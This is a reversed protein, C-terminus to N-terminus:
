CGGPIQKPITWDLGSSIYMKHSSSTAGIRSQIRTRLAELIQKLRFGHPVSGTLYSRIRQVAGMYQDYGLCVSGPRKLEGHIHWIRKKSSNM